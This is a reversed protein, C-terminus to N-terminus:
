ADAPIWGKVTELAKDTWEQPILTPDLAYAVGGAIVLVLILQFFLGGKKREPREGPRVYAKKPKGGKDLLSTTHQLMAQHEAKAWRDEESESPAQKRPRPPRKELPPPASMAKVSARLDAVRTASNSKGFGSM